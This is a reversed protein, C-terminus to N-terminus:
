CVMIKNSSVYSLSHKGGGGGGGGGVVMQVVDAERGWGRVRWGVGGWLLLIQSSDCLSICELISNAIM